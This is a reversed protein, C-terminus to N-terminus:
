KLLEIFMGQVVSVNEAPLYKDTVYIKNKVFSRFQIKYGTQQSTSQGQIFKIISEPVDFNFTIENKDNDLYLGLQKIRSIKALEKEEEITRNYEDEDFDFDFDRQASTSVEANSNEEINRVDIKGRDINHLKCFITIAEQTDGAKPVKKSIVNDEIMYFSEIHNDNLEKLKEDDSIEKDMIDNYLKTDEGIVDWVSKNLAPKITEGQSEPLLLQRATDRIAFDRLLAPISACLEEGNGHWLPYGTVGYKDIFEQQLGIPLEVHKAEYWNMGFGFGMYLPCWGDIKVEFEEKSVKLWKMPDISNHVECFIEDHVFATFLVKGLWGEKCIRKFLRGVALKYIDAASNHTIVGDAVYYGRDTNCIDYMDIYEDTVEVSDVILCKGFIHEDEICQLEEGREQKEWNVFGIRDLFIDNDTTKIQLIYRDDYKRYRSRVGFFLLAKQIDKMLPEFNDQSGQTLRIAKGSIGGDGDFMGCLFGRLMEVDAWIKDDIHHRIDLSQIEKALTKSYVTVNAIAEQRNERVKNINDVCNLLQMADVLYDYVDLEHEAVIQKIYYRHELDDCVLTGDSALRGLVVGQKFSDGIDDLFVNNANSVDGYWSANSRDSKYVYNSSTDGCNPTVVVRHANKRLRDGDHLPILDSCKVFSDNGRHSRVKFKHDPSCVMEYGGKFKVICKQKKGSYTVDGRTWDDGDWVYVENGVLEEVRKIGEHQEYVLSDGQICGQIIQNGAQRRIASVSFKNRHYYRRRGFYTETYGMHVGNSRAKEFFDKIDEQGEFYKVRLAGAKRTNAESVEGFVAAGLSEDGMGYPLGFNIGKAQKRLKSTVTAYPIGYMRSAQYQHYDFDPDKFGEKIMKNGSMNGLVRYEVSSYDQDTAYYGQRPIIYKKITDNYSQYNPKNISVRGTTTGYQMVSSFLFGDETCLDPLNKIFNKRLGDFARFETLVEVFPYICKDNEDKMDALKKLASKDTTLRGTKRSIQEPIGLEKYMVQVLDKPSNPNFPHGAMEEMTKMCTDIGNEVDKKLDDVRAMDACHGMFEQYAVALSFAIEIEYVKQANYKHLLDAKIAYDLLDLTNDTDAPAYYKVLEEPLDWFKISEDDGWSGDRILDSLELSDRNLFMRTLEKLGMPFNEKEAGYTLKYLAMTDHVINANINYIFAVKWDFSMNHAVLQKEELIPKMYKTMFYNDDGGCLNPISRMNCPFFYSTGSEVSLVIGVCIDGRGERSLFTINLGTTETDYAVYGDHNYIMECIEELNDDTVINYNKGRLWEFEREPHYKIVEDLSHYLLSNISSDFENGESTLLDMSNCSLPKFGLHESDTKFGINKAIQFDNFAEMNFEPKDDLDIKFLPTDLHMSVVAGKDLSVTGLINGDGDPVRYERTPSPEFSDSLTNMINYDVSNKSTCMTKAYRITAGLRIFFDNNVARAKEKGNEDIYKVTEIKCTGTNINFRRLQLEEFEPNGNMVGIAEYDHTVIRTTISALTDAGEIEFMANYPTGDAYHTTKYVVTGALM